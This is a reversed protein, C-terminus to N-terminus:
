RGSGRERLRSGSIREHADTLEPDADVVAEFMSRAQTFRGKRELLDGLAYWARVHHEEATEADLPLSELMAIAEDTRDLDGLAGAGVIRAEFLVAPAVRAGDIENCLELAREPKSMA